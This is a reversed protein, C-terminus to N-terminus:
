AVFCDQQYQGKERELKVSFGILEKDYKHLLKHRYYIRMVDNFMNVIEKTNFRREITMIVPMEQVKLHLISAITLLEVDFAYRNVSINRFITRMIDGKGVKFGAQTDAQAIGITLKILLHFARSLFARSRPITVSSEAHRKSAIVLDSTGLKEVYDRILHPSIDLDGDLFIVADGHSHLVGQRVAYGKGRNPTYSIIHLHEDTMALDRLITLTNDTSGDNVVILEYNSFASEVAQKIKEVSYSIKGAQNFVPIIVSIRLEPISRRRSTVITESSLTMLTM